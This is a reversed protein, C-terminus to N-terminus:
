QKARRAARNPKAAEDKDVFATFLPQLDEFRRLKGKLMQEEVWDEVDPEVILGSIVDLYQGITDLVTRLQGDTYEGGKPVAESIRQM